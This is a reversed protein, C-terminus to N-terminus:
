GKRDPFLRPRNRTFTQPLTKGGMNIIEIAIHGNPIIRRHLKRRIHGDVVVNEGDQRASTQVIQINTAPLINEALAGPSPYPMTTAACTSLSFVSAIMHIINTNKKTLKITTEEIPKLCTDKDRNRPKPCLNRRKRYRPSYKM